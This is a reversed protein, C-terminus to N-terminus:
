RENSIRGYRNLVRIDYKYWYNVAICRFSNLLIKGKVWHKLAARKQRGLLIRNTKNGRNRQNFTIFNKLFNRRALTTETPRFVNLAFLYGVIWLTKWNFIYNSWKIRNLGCRLIDINYNRKVKSIGYSYTECCILLMNTKGRNVPLLLNSIRRLPIPDITKITIWSLRQQQSRQFLIALALM